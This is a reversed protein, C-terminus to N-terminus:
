FRSGVVGFETYNSFVDRRIFFSCFGVLRVLLGM